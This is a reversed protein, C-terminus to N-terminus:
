GFRNWLWGIGVVLELAIFLKIFFTRGFKTFRAAFWDFFIIGFLGDIVLLVSIITLFAM